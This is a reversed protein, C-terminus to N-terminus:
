TWQIGVRYDHVVDWPDYGLDGLPIPFFRGYLSYEGSLDTHEVWGKVRAHSVGSPTVDKVPPPSSESFPGMGEFLPPPPPYAKRGTM